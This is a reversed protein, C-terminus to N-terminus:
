HYCTVTGPDCWLEGCCRDHPLEAWQRRLRGRISSFAGADTMGLRLRQPAPQPRLIVNHARVPLLAMLPGAPITEHGETTSTSKSYVRSHIRSGRNGRGNKDDSGADSIADKCLRHIAYDEDMRARQFPTLGHIRTISRNWAHAPYERCLTIGANRSPGKRRQTLFTKDCEILRQGRVGPEAVGQFRGKKAYTQAV